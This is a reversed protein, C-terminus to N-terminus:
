APSTGKGLYPEGGGKAGERLVESSVFPECQQETRRERSCQLSRGRVRVRSPKRGGLGIEGTWGTEDWGMWVCAM